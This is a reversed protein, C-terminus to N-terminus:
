KGLTSGIIAAGVGQGIGAAAGGLVGQNPQSPYGNLGQLAAQDYIGQRQLAMQQDFTLGHYPAFKQNAQQQLAYKQQQAALQKQREFAKQAETSEFGQQQGLMSQHLGGQYYPNLAGLTNLMYNSRNLLDQYGFQRNTDAQGFMQAQEGQGFQFAQNQANQYAQNQQSKMQDYQQAYLKSGEPIGQEAMRSRFMQEEQGFRKDLEQRQPEYVSQYAKQRMEEYNGPMVADYQPMQGNINPLLNNIAGYAGQTVDQFGQATQDPTGGSTTPDTGLAGLAKLRAEAKPANGAGKKSVIAQLKQIEQNKAKEGTPAKWNAGTDPAGYIMPDTHLAGKKNKTM